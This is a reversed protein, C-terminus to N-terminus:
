FVSKPCSHNIIDIYFYNSHNLLPYVLIDAPHEFGQIYDIKSSKVPVLPLSDTPLPHNLLLEFLQCETNYVDNLILSM